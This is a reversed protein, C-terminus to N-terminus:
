SPCASCRVAMRMADCATADDAEIAVTGGDVGSGLANIRWSAPMSALAYPEPQKVARREDAECPESRGCAECAGVLPADLAADFPPVVVVLLLSAPMAGM